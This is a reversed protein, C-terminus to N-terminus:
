KGLNYHYYFPPCGSSARRKIPQHSNGAKTLCARTFVLGVWEQEEDRWVANFLHKEFEGLLKDCEETRIGSTVLAGRPEVQEAICPALRVLTPTRLNATVMQYGGDITEANRDCVVIRESLGNLDVNAKAEAVACPDIDVALGAEIGLLVAAMALVGSGTGIDFVRSGGRVLSGGHRGLVFDIGKLALRTTPHRGAGFAAGPTIRIVVDASGPQFTREPPALVIRDSVRVPRDFSPELFNRGHEFVYVLEGAAVLARLSAKAQESPLNLDRM